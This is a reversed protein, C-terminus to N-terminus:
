WSNNQHACHKLWYLLTVVVISILGLGFNDKLMEHTVIVCHSLPALCVSIYFSRCEWQTNLGSPSTLPFGLAAESSPVKNIPRLKQLM